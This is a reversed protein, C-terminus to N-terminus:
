GIYVGYKGHMDCRQGWWALDVIHRGVHLEMRATLLLQHATSSLIGCVEEILHAAATPSGDDNNGQTGDSCYTYYKLTDM